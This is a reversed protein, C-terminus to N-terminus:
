KKLINLFMNLHKANVNLANVLSNKKILFRIMHVLVMNVFVSQILVLGSVNLLKVMKSFLKYEVNKSTWTVYIGSEIAEKAHNLDNDMMIKTGYSLKNNKVTNLIINKTIDNIQKNNVIENNDSTKFINISDTKNNGKRIDSENSLGNDFKCIQNKKNIINSSIEYNKNMQTNILKNDHINTKGTQKNDLKQKLKNKNSYEM